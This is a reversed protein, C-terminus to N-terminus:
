ASRLLDRQRAIAGLGLAYLAALIMGLPIALAVILVRRPWVPRKADPLLPPDLVKLAYEERVSAMMLDRLESDILRATADRLEVVSTREMEKNLYDLAQQAQAKARSRMEENLEHVMQQAWDVARQRDSWDVTLTILNNVENTSIRRVDADFKRVGDNLTPIRRLSSYTWRKGIPDWDRYFLEPLLNHESIFRATFARSKLVAIAEQGNNSGGLASGLGALGAVEGLSGLMSNMGLDKDTAPIMVVQVRYIPTALLAYATAAAMVALFVALMGRRHRKFQAYIRRLSEDGPM